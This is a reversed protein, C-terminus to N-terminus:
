TAPTASQSMGRTHPSIETRSRRPRLTATVITIFLRLFTVKKVHWFLQPWTTKRPLCPVEHCEVHTLLFRQSSGDHACLQRSSPLLYDCFRSKKSTDSFSHDHRKAHCAHCKTANWRTLFDNQTAPAISKSCKWFIHQMIRPLRLVKSVESTMKRPLRLVKSTDHQTNETFQM